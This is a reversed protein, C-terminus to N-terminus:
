QHRAMALALIVIAMGACMGIAFAIMPNFLLSM